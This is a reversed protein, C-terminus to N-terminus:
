PKHLIYSFDIPNWVFKFNPSRVKYMISLLSRPPLVFFSSARTNEPLRQPLRPGMTGPMQFLISLLPLNGKEFTSVVPWNRILRMRMPLCHVLIRWHSNGWRCRKLAQLRRRKASDFLKWSCIRSKKALQHLNQHNNITHPNLNMHNM